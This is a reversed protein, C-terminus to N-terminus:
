CKAPKRLDALVLVVVLLTSCFELQYSCCVDFSCRDYHEMCIYIYLIYIYMYVYMYIYIFALRLYGAGLALLCSLISTTANRTGKLPDTQKAVLLGLGWVGFAVSELRGALGLGLARFCSRLYLLVDWLGSVREQTKGNQTAYSLRRM